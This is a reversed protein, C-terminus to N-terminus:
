QHTRNFDPLKRQGDKIESFRTLSADAKAITVPIGIPQSARAAGPV